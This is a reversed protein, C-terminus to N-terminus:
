YENAGNYAYNQYGYQDEGDAYGDDRYNFDDGENGYYENDYNQDADQGEVFQDNANDYGDGEFEDDYEGDGNVEPEIDKKMKDFDKQADIHSKSARYCCCLVCLGFCGVIFGAASFSLVRNAIFREWATLPPIVKVNIRNTVWTRNTAQDTITCVWLGAHEGRVHGVSSKVMHPPISKYDEHVTGNHYWILRARPYMLGLIAGKCPLKLSSGFRALMQYQTTNITVPFINIIQTSGPVYEFQCGYIGGDDKGMNKLTLVGEAYEMKKKNMKLEKGDKSWIQAMNPYKEEYLNDLDTRCDLDVSKKEDVVFNHYSTALHAKTADLLAKDLPAMCPIDNCRKKIQRKLGLCNEGRKCKRTRVGSGGGCTVPCSWDSWDGWGAEQAERVCLASCTETRAEAYTKVPCTFDAYSDMKGQQCERIHQVNGEPICYGDSRTCTGVQQWPSWMGTFEGPGDCEAAIYCQKTGKFENGCVSYEKPECDDKVCHLCQRYREQIGNKENCNRACTPTWPQWASWKRFGYCHELVFCVLIVVLMQDSNVKM